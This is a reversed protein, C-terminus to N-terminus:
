ALNRITRFTDSEKCANAQIMNWAKSPDMGTATMKKFACQTCQAVSFEESQKFFIIRQTYYLFDVHRHPQVGLITKCSDCMLISFFDCNNQDEGEEGECGETCICKEPENENYYTRAGSIKLKELIKVLGMSVSRRIEM